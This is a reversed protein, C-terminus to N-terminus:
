QAKSSAWHPSPHSGQVALPLTVQQAGPSRTHTIRPTITASGQTHAPHASPGGLLLRPLVQELLADSTHASGLAQPPGQSCPQPCLLATGLCTPVSPMSKVRRPAPPTRLSGCTRRGGCDSSPVDARQAPRPGRQGTGALDVPGPCGQLSTDKWSSGLGVWFGVEEEQGMTHPTLTPGPTGELARFVCVCMQRAKPLAWTGKPDSILQLLGPAPPPHPTPRTRALGQGPQTPHPIEKVAAPRLLPRFPSEVPCRSVNAPGRGTRSATNQASAQSIRQQVRIDMVGPVWLGLAPANEGGRAEQHCGGVWEPGRCQAPCDRQGQAGPFPGQSSVTESQTLKEPQQRTPAVPYAPPACAM